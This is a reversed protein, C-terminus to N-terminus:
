HKSPGVPTRILSEVSMNDAILDHAILGYRWPKGDHKSSFETAHKCWQEAAAGKALVIPDELENRAKVELMHIADNMEGVFDPIYEPREIGAKYFIQFQGTAPRFWKLSDRDLIVALRREADSAFKQAPYLCRQFGGFLYRSINSPEAVPLRFDLIKESARKTYASPKLSDFGRTITVEYETAEERFHAQM